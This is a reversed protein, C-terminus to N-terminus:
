TWMVGPPTSFKRSGRVPRWFSVSCSTSRPTRQQSLKQLEDHRYARVIKETYRVRISVNIGHFRLMTSVEACRNHCTRDGLGEKKM